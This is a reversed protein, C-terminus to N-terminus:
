HKFCDSYSNQARHTQHARKRSLRGQRALLPTQFHLIMRRSKSRTSINPNQSISHPDGDNDSGAGGSGAPVCPPAPLTSVTPALSYSRAGSLSIKGAAQLGGTAGM